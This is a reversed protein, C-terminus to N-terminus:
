NMANLADDYQQQALDNLQKAYDQYSISGYVSNFIIDSITANDKDAIKLGTEAQWRSAAYGPVIKIPDLMATDLNEYAKKIGPVNVLEWYADLVEQDTTVPLSALELGTEDAIAMRKMFGEKGFSMWKAFEYAMEPNKTTKAIGLYDTALASRGTPLGIFDWDFNAETAFINNMWTGNWYFAMQGSRFAVGPDEGSLGEKQEPTLGEYAYGNAGLDKATNVGEVMEPSDLHYNGDAYTFWNFDPNKMAPYWDVLSQASDIGITGQGIDTSDKIAKIFADLEIGYQPIDLNLNNFIEKNVYYGMMHQAFPVAYLGDKVKTSDQISQPLNTFESDNGAIDSVDLLWDNAVSGPIDNLMFVDPLKNASAATALSAKWDDTTITEDIQISVNQHSEEFAQIMRRELNQDAETGLNWNAYKLVIKDANGVDQNSGESAKEGSGCAALTAALSIALALNMGKRLMM